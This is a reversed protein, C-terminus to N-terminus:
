IVEIKLSEESLMQQEGGDVATQYCSQPVRTLPKYPACCYSLVGKRRSFFRFTLSSVRKAGFGIFGADLEFEAPVTVFAVSVWKM